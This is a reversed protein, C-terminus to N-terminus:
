KVQHSCFRSTMQSNRGQTGSQEGDVERRGPAVDPCRQGSETERTNGAKEAGVTADAAPMKTTRGFGKRGCRGEDGDRKEAAGRINLRYKARSFLVTPWPVKAYSYRLNSQTAWPYLRVEDSAPSRNERCVGLGEM